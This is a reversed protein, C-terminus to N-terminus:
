RFAGNQMQITSWNLTIVNYQFLYSFLYIFNDVIGLINWCETRDVLHFSM